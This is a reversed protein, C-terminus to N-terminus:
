QVLTIATLIEDRLEAACTAYVNMGEPILLLTGTEVRWSCAIQLLSDYPSLEIIGFETGGMDYVELRLSPVAEAVTIRVTHFFDGPPRVRPKRHSSNTQHAKGCIHDEIADMQTTYDDDWEHM